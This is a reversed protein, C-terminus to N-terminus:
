AIHILLTNLLIWCHIGKKLKNQNKSKKQGNMYREYVLVVGWWTVRTRWVAEGMFKPASFHSPFRSATLHRSTMSLATAFRWLYWIWGTLVCGRKGTGPQQGHQGRHEWPSRPSCACKECGLQTVQEAPKATTLSVIAFALTAPSWPQPTEPSQFVETWCWLGAATPPRRMNGHHKDIVCQYWLEGNWSTWSIIESPFSTM